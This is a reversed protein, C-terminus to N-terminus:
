PLSRTLLTLLRAILWGIIAYGVLAFLASMDLTFVGLNWNSFAGAFPAILGDTVSYVWAVFSSSSSAGLLQLVIRLVIFFAIIGFITNVVRSVLLGPTYSYYPRDREYALETM